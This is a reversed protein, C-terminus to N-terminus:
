VVRYHKFHNYERIYDSEDYYHDTLVMLISDELLYTQQAWITPPIYLGKIPSDLLYERSYISDDCIVNIKGSLCILFQHGNKHSHKGRVEDKDINYIYFSRKIQFPIDKSGEVFALSGSANSINRIRIIEVSDINYNIKHM